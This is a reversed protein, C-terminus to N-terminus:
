IFSCNTHHLEVLANNQKLSRKTLKDAEAYTRLPM